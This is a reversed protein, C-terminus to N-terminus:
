TLGANKSSDLFLKLKRMTSLSPSQTRHNWDIGLSDCIVATLGRALLADRECICGGSWTQKELCELSHRVSIIAGLCESEITKMRPM